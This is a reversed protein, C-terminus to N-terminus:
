ANKQKISKINIVYINTQGQGRRIVQIYGYKQLERIGRYVTAVSIGLKQAIKDQGPYVANKNGYAFSVLGAFVLKAKPSLKPHALIFNPLITFGETSIADAGHLIISRKGKKIKKVEKISIGLNQAIEQLTKNIKQM